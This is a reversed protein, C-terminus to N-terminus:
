GRTEKWELKMKKYKKNEEAKKWKEYFISASINKELDGTGKELLAYAESEYKQGVKYNAYPECILVGQEGKGVWYLEPFARYDIDKKWLYNKSDFNLYTPKTMM